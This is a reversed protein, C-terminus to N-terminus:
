FLINTDLFGSFSGKIVKNSSTMVEFELVTNESQHSVKLTGSKIIIIENEEMDEINVNLGAAAGYISFPKDEESFEYIGDELELLKSSALNFFVVDGKGDFEYTDSNFVISESVLFVELDFLNESIMDFPFLYGKSLSYTNGDYAFQNLIIQQEKEDNTKCSNLILISSLFLLSFITRKLM